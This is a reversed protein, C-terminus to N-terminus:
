ETPPTSEPPVEPLVEPTPILLDFMLQFDSNEEIRDLSYLVVLNPNVEVVTSVILPNGVATAFRETVHAHINEVGTNGLYKYVYGKWAGFMTQFFELNM